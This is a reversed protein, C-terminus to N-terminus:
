ELTVVTVSGGLDRQTDKWGSAAVAESSAESVDVLLFIIFTLYSGIISNEGRYAILHRADMRIELSASM